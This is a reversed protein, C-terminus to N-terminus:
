GTRFLLQACAGVSEARQAEQPPEGMATVTETRSLACSTVICKQLTACARSANGFSYVAAGM